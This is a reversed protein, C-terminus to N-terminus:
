NGKGTRTKKSRKRFSDLNSQGKCKKICYNKGSPWTITVSISDSNKLGFNPRPDVSSQFGRTPQNELTYNGPNIKIKSGIANTNKGEGKLVFKIYAGQAADMTTNKYIFSKMNLNSVVLDLDGDNDLDGYAAGNSFSETQLGSESFNEFKLEGLNKYAHNKLKNSPIIEILRAYDVANNATISKLVEENSIYQLYDQNTLDRYIGNSIFLDKNGDNDMDFILAGWSWDSAEVGSLRGLKM